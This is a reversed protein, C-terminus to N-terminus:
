SGTAPLNKYMLCQTGRRDTYRRYVRYGLAGYLSHEGLASALYLCTFGLELAVEEAHLCLSRAIGLGRWSEPVYVNCIWPRAAPDFDTSDHSRLTLVGAVNDGVQALLTCPLGTGDRGAALEVAFRERTQALTRGSFLGWEDQIWGAVVDLAEPAARLTGITAPLAGPTTSNM